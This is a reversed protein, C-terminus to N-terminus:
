SKGFFTELQTGINAGEDWGLVIELYRNQNVVANDNDLEVVVIVVDYNTNEDSYYEPTQPFYNRYYFSSQMGAAQREAERMQEYTGSGTKPDTAVAVTTGALGESLATQFGIAADSEVYDEDFEARSKATLEIGAEQTTITADLTGAAAGDVDEGGYPRDLTIELETEAGDNTEIAEIQYVPSNLDNASGIRIYDGVSANVDNGSGVNAIVIEEGENADITVNGVGDTLQSSAQNVLVDARAFAKAGDKTTFGEAIGAAIDYQTDGSLVDHHATARPFQEFGKDLRTLKVYVDGENASIGFSGSGSFGVHTVQQVYAQYDKTLVRVIDDKKIEQTVFPNKDDGQVILMREAANAGTLDLTGGELNDADFIAIQQDPVETPDTVGASGADVTNNNNFLVLRNM